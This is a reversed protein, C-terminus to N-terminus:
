AGSDAMEDLDVAWSYRLKEHRNLFPSPTTSSLGAPHAPADVAFTDANNQMVLREALEARAEEAPVEMQNRAPGTSRTPPLPM